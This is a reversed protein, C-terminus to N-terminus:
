TDIDSDIQQSILKPSRSLLLSANGRMLLIGLQQYMHCLVETDERGTHGALQRGLKNLVKMARRDWGVLTETPLAVFHIGKINCAEMSLQKKRDYAHNLAAGRDGAANAM